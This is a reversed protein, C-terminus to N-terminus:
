HLPVLTFGVLLEDASFQSTARVGKKVSGLAQFFVVSGIVEGGGERAVGAGSRM